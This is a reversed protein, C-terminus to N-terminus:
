QLQPIPSTLNDINLPIQVNGGSPPAIGQGGISLPISNGTVNDKLIVSGNNGNIGPVTINDVQLSGGGISTGPKVDQITGDPLRILANPNNQTGFIGIVNTENLNFVGTQTADQQVNGSTPLQGESQPPPPTDSGTEPPPTNVSPTTEDSLSDNGSGGSVGSTGSSTDSIPESLEKENIDEPINTADITPERVAKLYQTFLGNKFENIVNIVRYLGTIVRENQPIRLGQANEDSPLNVKLFFMIGGLDYKAYQSPGDSSVINKNPDGLWYPDGRIHIEITMLDSGNEVNATIAANHIKANTVSENESSHGDHNSIMAQQFRIPIINEPKRNEKLLESLLTENRGSLSLSELVSADGINNPNNENLSNLSRQNEVLQKKLSKIKERINQPNRAVNDSLRDHEIYGGTIPTMVFYAMEFKLELNLVETNKGTFLYYYKKKLLGRRAYDLVKGRQTEPNSAIRNYEQSDAPVDNIYKKITYTIIKKYDNRLLDFEGFTIDSLVKYFIKSVKESGEKSPGGPEELVTEGSATSLLKWEETAKLLTGFFEHLNTGNTFTFQIEDGIRNYGKSNEEIDLSEFKWDKWEEATKHFEIKYEDYTVSNLDTYFNNLSLQNIKTQLDEIVSGITSGQIAVTGRVVGSLYNHGYTSIEQATINYYSGNGDVYAVVDTFIVAYRFTAPYKTPSNNESRAPFSIEIIYIASTMNPINNREAANRLLDLFTAGNPETIKLDFRNAFSTRVINYGLVYTQNCFEINYRAIKSNDAILIGGTTLEDKYKEPNVQRIAINYTYTLYQNLENELYTASM